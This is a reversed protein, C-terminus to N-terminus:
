LGLLGRVLLIQLKGRVVGVHAVLVYLLTVGQRLHQTHAIDVGVHGFSTSVVVLLILLIGEGNSVIFIFGENVGEGQEEKVEEGM